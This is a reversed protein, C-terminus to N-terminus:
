ISLAHHTQIIEKPQPIQFAELREVPPQVTPIQALRERTDVGQTLVWAANDPQHKPLLAARKALEIASGRTSTYGVAERLQEKDSTIITLQERARTAAVYFLSRDMADGSVIVRDVTKAQSRHATVVYGHAFQRYNEPLTRGDTLRIQSGDVESVTVLQGNTARLHKDRRNAQLLLKDGAAVEIPQPKYVSFADAQRRTISVEAGSSKRGIIRDGDVRLVAVAENKNVDRTKKHFELILGPQEAFLKANQKEAKTWNLPTHRIVAHSQGLENKSIRDQRIAHTLRFIEDHTPAVALVQPTTGKITLQESAERYAAAVAKPRDQWPVEHIAGIAEFKKFADNPNTRLTEVAERYEKVAQRQVKTISVTRLKSEQELIRLADGAEVSSIQKTDGTFLIRARAHQAIKILQSMQRNSVMGAEDVVLVTAQLNQQENPDQLLREITVANGFGVAQLEEVSSRTPGVAMFSRGGETLGRQIEKQLTTKGVAVCAINTAFDPSDLAFQVGHKQEDTLWSAPRFDSSGGLRQYRGVGSDIAQIMARERDLSEMTALDNGARILKGDHEARAMAAKLSDLQVGGRGQRLAETMLEHQKATSVREFLHASSYELAAAPDIQRQAPGRQQAVTALQRLEAAEDPTMRQWQRATVEAATIDKSKDPRSDRVLVAIEGDTPPRGSERTFEAIAKDRAASRQSFKDITGQSVGAIEFGREEGTDTFRDVIGYGLAQVRKALTNRYVETIYARQKYIESAQLAKWRGETGDYTLNGTAVHTHIQPDLERSTDHRYLAMVLNGTTRNENMGGQRVRAAALREMEKAAELVAEDHAVLLRRDNLAMVSLSKPASITFDYLTRGTSTLEGAADHRDASVRPRLYEGTTPHLGQRIADFDKLDVAGKLGLLDAGRGLWQGEISESESYYDGPGVALYEAAYNDAGSLARPTLM